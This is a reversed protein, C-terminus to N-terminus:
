GTKWGRALLWVMLLLEGIFTYMGIELSYGSVLLLGFSDTLYGLGAVVLLVGLLKPVQGSKAALYGLLLLHIGFFVFGINWGDNFSNIALMVQAPAAVAGGTASPDGGLLRPVQALDLLNAGLIAAYILRFWAALLSLSKNVPEFFVFLAWAVVVDLVCVITFGFVGLRFLGQAGKINGATAAADGPVVLSELAHFNALIAAVTMVLLGAGAVIAAKQPSMGTSGKRGSGPSM